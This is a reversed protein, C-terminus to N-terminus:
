GLAGLAGLAAEAVVMDQEETGGGVGLGGILVGDHVIPYGGGVFSVGPVATLGQLVTPSGGFLGALVHTPAGFKASTFAKNTVITVGPGPVGEMRGFAKLDGGADVVAIAMPQAIERAKAEASIVLAQAALLTISGGPISVLAPGPQAAAQEGDRGLGTAVAATAAAAIV